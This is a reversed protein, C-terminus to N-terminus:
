ESKESPSPPSILKAEETGTEFTGSTSDGFIGQQIAMKNLSYKESRLADRDNFLCYIYSFFYLFIAILLSIGMLIILWDPAKAYMFLATALTLIGILWAIPKLVDSRSLTANMQEKLMSVLQIFDAV